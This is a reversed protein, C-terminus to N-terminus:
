GCSAALSCRSGGGASSSRPSTSCARRRTPGDGTDDLVWSIMAAALLVMVLTGTARSYLIWGSWRPDDAFRRSMAFCAAALEYFAGMGTIGHVIGHLTPPVHMDAGPPYGLM